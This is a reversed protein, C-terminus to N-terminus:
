LWRRGDRDALHGFNEVKDSLQTVLANRDHQDAVAHRVNESDGIADHDQTATSLNCILRDRRARGFFNGAEDSAGDFGRELSFSLILLERRVNSKKCSTFTLPQVM